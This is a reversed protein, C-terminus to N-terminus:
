GSHRASPHPMSFVATEIPSDEWLRAGPAGAPPWSTGGRQLGSAPRKTLSRTSSASELDTERRRSGGAWEGRRTEEGRWEGAGLRKRWRADWSEGLGWEDKEDGEMEDKPAEAEKQASTPEKAPASTM